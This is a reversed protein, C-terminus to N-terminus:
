KLPEIAISFYSAAYWGGLFDAWPVIQQHTHGSNVVAGDPTYGAVVAYQGANLPGCARDVRVILPKNARVAEVLMEPSGPTVDAKMEAQRALVALTYGKDMGNLAEIIDAVKAPKGYYSLVSALSAPGCNLDTESFYPVQLILRSEIPNEFPQAQPRPTLCATLFIFFPLLYFVKVTRSNM